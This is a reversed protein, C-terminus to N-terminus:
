ILYYGHLGWFLAQHVTLVSYRKKAMWSTGPLYVYGAPSSTSRYWFTCMRGMPWLYWFSTSMNNEQARATITIASNTLNEQTNVLSEGELHKNTLYAGTVFLGAQGNLLELGAPAELSSLSSCTYCTSQEKKETKTKVPFLLLNVGFISNNQM